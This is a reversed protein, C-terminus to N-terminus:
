DAVTLPPSLTGSTPSPAKEGGLGIKHMQEEREKDLFAVYCDLRYEPTQDQHLCFEPSLLLLRGKSEMFNKVKAGAFGMFDQFFEFCLKLGNTLCSAGTITKMSVALSLAHIIKDLCWKVGRDGEDFGHVGTLVLPLVTLLKTYLSVAVSSGGNVMDDTLREEMSERPWQTAFFAMAPADILLQVWNLHEWGDGNVLKLVLRPPLMAPVTKHTKLLRLRQPATEGELAVSEVVECHDPYLMQTVVTALPPANELNLASLCLDKVRDGLKAETKTHDRAGLLHQRLVVNKSKFAFLVLDQALAHADKSLAVLETLKRTFNPDNRIGGVELKSPGGATASGVNTDLRLANEAALLVTMRSTVTSGEVLSSYAKLSNELLHLIELTVKQSALAPHFTGRLIDIKARTDQKTAGEVILKLLPFDGEAVVEPLAAAFLAAPDDAAVFKLLKLLDKMDYKQTLQSEMWAPFETELFWCVAPGVMEMTFETQSPVEAHLYAKTLLKLVSSCTGKVRVSLRPFTGLFSLLLALNSCIGAENGHNYRLSVVAGVTVEQLIDQARTAQPLLVAADNLLQMETGPTKALACVVGRMFEGLSTARPREGLLPLLTEAAQGLARLRPRLSCFPLDGLAVLDVKFMPLLAATLADLQVLREEVGDANVKTVSLDSPMLAVLSKATLSSCVAYVM